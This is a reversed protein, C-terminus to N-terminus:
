LFMAILAVEIAAMAYFLAAMAIIRGRGWYNQPKEVIPEVEYLSASMNMREGADKRGKSILKVTLWEFSGKFETKGWLWLFVHWIALTILFWFVFQWALLGPARQFDFWGASFNGQLFETTAGTIANTTIHYVVLLGSVIWQLSFVTLSVLGFRRVSVTRQAFERAKGRVDIMYVLILMILLSGGLLMVKEGTDYVSEIFYYPLTGSAANLVVHLEAVRLLYVLLGGVFVAIAAALWRNAYAKEINGSSIRFGILAGVVGFVAFPFAPGTGRFISNIFFYLINWGLGRTEWGATYYYPFTRSLTVMFPTLILMILAALLLRNSVWQQGKERRLLQTYLVGSIVIGWAIAHLVNTAYLGNISQLLPNSSQTVTNLLLRNLLVDYVYAMVLIFLGRILQSKLIRNAAIRKQDSSPNQAILKKWQKDISITNVLGSLAVFLVNFQGFFALPIVLSWFPWAIGSTLVGEYNWVVQLMHFFLVAIIATGRLLDLSVFRKM